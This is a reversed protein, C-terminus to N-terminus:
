SGALHRHRTRGTQSSHKWSRYICRGYQNSLPPLFRSLRCRLLREQGLAQQCRIACRRRNVPVGRGVAGALFAPEIGAPPVNRCHCFLLPLRTHFGLLVFLFARVSTIASCESEPIIVAIVPMALFAMLAPRYRSAYLPQSAQKCRRIHPILRCLHRAKSIFVGSLIARISLRSSRGRNVMSGTRAAFIPRLLVIM